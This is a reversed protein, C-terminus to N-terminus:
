LRASTFRNCRYNRRLHLRCCKGDNFESTPIIATAAIIRVAAANDGGFHSSDLFCKDPWVNLIDIRDSGTKRSRPVFRACAARLYFWVAAATAVSPRAPPRSPRLEEDHVRLQCDRRKGAAILHVTTRSVGLVEAIKWQSLQDEALLRRIERVLEPHLM